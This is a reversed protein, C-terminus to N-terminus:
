RRAPGTDALSLSLPKQECRQVFYDNTLHLFPVRAPKDQQVLHGQKSATVPTPATDWHNQHRSCSPQSSPETLRSFTASVKFVKEQETRM